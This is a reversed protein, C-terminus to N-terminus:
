GGAAGPLLSPSSRTRPGAVHVGEHWGPKELAWKSAELILMRGRLQM